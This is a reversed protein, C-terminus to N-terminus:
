YNKNSESPFEGFLKKYDDAFQGSHTFGWRNAIDKIKNNDTPNILDKKAKNLKLYKIFKKPSLEALDNFIYRLNRESTEVHSYIDKTTLSQDINQEIFILAKRLIAKRTRTTEKQIKNEIKHLSKILLIPLEIILKEQDVIESNCLETVIKRIRYANELSIEIFESQQISTFLTKEYSLKLILETMYDNNLSIPTGFFDKPLISSLHMESKLLGIRIISLGSKQWNYEPGINGPFLFVTYGKKSIGTRFIKHNFKSVGVIVQHSVVQTMEGYFNGPEMQYDQVNGQRIEKAFADSDYFVGHYKQIKFNL